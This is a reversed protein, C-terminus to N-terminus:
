NNSQRGNKDVEVELINAIQKKNILTNEKKITHVVISISDEQTIFGTAVKPKNEANKYSVRVKIDKYIELYNVM